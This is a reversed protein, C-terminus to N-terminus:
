LYLTGAFDAGLLPLLNLLFGNLHTKIGSIKGLGDPAAPQIVGTQGDHLALESLNRMRQM